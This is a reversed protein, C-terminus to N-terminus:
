LNLDLDADTITLTGDNNFTESTIAKYGLFTGGSSATWFGIHSVTTPTGPINLQPQTSSDLNGGSAASFSIAERTYSGGSVENTGSEGPDATHASVHTVGLSDLM